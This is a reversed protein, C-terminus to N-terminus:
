SDNNKIIISIASIKIVSVFKWIQMIKGQIKSSFPGSVFLASIWSFFKGSSDSMKWVSKVDM